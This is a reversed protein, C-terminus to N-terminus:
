TIINQAVSRLEQLELVLADYQDVTLMVGVMDNRNSIYVGTDQERALDFGLMPSQKIDTITLRPICAMTRFDNDYKVM